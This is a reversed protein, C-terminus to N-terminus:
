LIKSPWPKGAIGFKDFEKFGKFFSLPEFFNTCHILFRVKTERYNKLHM